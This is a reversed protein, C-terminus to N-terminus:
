SGGKPDQLSSPDFPNPRLSTAHSSLTQIILCRTDSKNNGGDGHKSHCVLMMRRHREVEFLITPVYKHFVIVNGM